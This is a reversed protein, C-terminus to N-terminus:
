RCTQPLYMSDVNSSCQWSIAGDTGPIMTLTVQKGRLRPAVSQNRMLATIVCSTGVTTINVNAVYKGNYSAAVPLGDAGPVPCNGTQTYYEAVDTKLGGTLTFAETLQAKSVSNVYISISLASLIAIIAVVIMMEILTFGGSRKM